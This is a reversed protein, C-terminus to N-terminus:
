SGAEDGTHVPHGAEIWGGTGGAVSTADVGAETLIEAGQQSRRGSQCVVFVPGAGALEGVRGPLEDLPINVAGPVHGGAYEDASRVDVVRGAAERVAFEQVEIERVTM